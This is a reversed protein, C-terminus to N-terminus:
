NGHMRLFSDPYGEPVPIPHLPEGDEGVIQPLVFIILESRSEIKTEHRFLEGIIPLSGLLPIRDVVKSDESQILGGIALLGGDDVTVITHTRRTRLAPIVVGSLTVGNGFDLSSVEPNVDLVVKSQDPNIKPQMQLRVGFEKYEVTISAFGGVGTSAIPIPIEGGILINAEEGDNVLLNPESLVRAKNDQILAHLQAAFAYLRHFMDGRGNIQGYLFPQPRFQPGGAGSVEYQGWDIGLTDREGLTLEVVKVAVLVRQKDPEVITILNAVPVRDALLALVENVQELAPEDPVSGQVLLASEGAREVRIDPGLASQLTRQVVAVDPRPEVVQVLNITQVGQKGFADLLRQVRDLEGKSAVTGDVAVLNGSLQQVRFDEGLMQQIQAVPAQSALTQGRVTIMDVIKLDEAFAGIAGRAQLAQETNDLEGEIVLVDEGWATLKLRTDLLTTLAQAARAAATTDGATRASAMVVVKVEDTSSAEALAKLNELAVEDAVEGDVVVLSRSMAQARLNPSLGGQLELAVKEAPSMGVVTVAFKHLGRKDWVYLMTNGTKGKGEPDAVVILERTSAVSVDAIETHVVAVRTMGEFRLIVSRGVELVLAQSSGPGVDQFGGARAPLAGLALAGVLAAATLARCTTHAIATGRAAYM